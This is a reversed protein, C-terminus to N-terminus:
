QRELGAIRKELQTAHAALKRINTNLATVAKELARQVAMASADPKTYLKEINDYAVAWQAFGHGRKDFGNQLSVFRKSERAEHAKSDLPNTKVYGGIRFLGEKTVYRIHTGYRVLPWLDRPIEVYGNLLEKQEDETYTTAKHQRAPGTGGKKKDLAFPNAQGAM